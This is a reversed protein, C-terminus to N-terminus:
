RFSKSGSFVPISQVHLLTKFLQQAIRNDGGLSVVVPVGSSKGALSCDRGSSLREARSDCHDTERRAIQAAQYVM